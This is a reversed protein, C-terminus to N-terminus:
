RIPEVSIPTSACRKTRVSHGAQLTGSGSTVRSVSCSTTLGQRRFPPTRGYLASPQRSHRIVPKRPRAPRNSSSVTLSAARLEDSGWLEQVTALLRRRAQAPDADSVQDLERLVGFVRALKNITTRRRSETPHATMVLRLEAGRLLEDVEGATTGRKALESIVQRVSGPRPAPADRADRRRIRRVRENDEALNVLQFWRTLSRVLVETRDLDLAAVLEALRDAAAEDGGRAARGLSVADDLLEVASDGDSARIVDHLTETLLGEDRAHDRGPRTAQDDDCPIM